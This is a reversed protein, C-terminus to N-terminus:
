SIALLIPWAYNEQFANGNQLDCYVIMAKRYIDEEVKKAEPDILDSQFPPIICNFVETNSEEVTTTTTNSHMFEKNFFKNMATKNLSRQPLGCGVLENGIRMLERKHNQVIADNSTVVRCLGRSNEIAMRNYWIWLKLGSAFIEVQNVNRSKLSRAVEIPNRFTFVVAPRPGKLLPLWMKLTVCLRPDKMIWPVNSPNNYHHLAKNRNFFYQSNRELQSITKPCPHKACSHQLSFEHFVISSNTPSTTVNLVDWTKNQEKLWVDNQRLVNWNEYFGYPNQENANIQFGPSKYHLGHVLLGSLLSTGSRHMGLVIVGRVSKVKTANNGENKEDVDQNNNQIGHHQTEELETAISVNTKQLHGNNNAKEKLIHNEKKSEMIGRVSKISKVKTTKDFVVAQQMRQIIQKARKARTRGASDDVHKTATKKKLLIVPVAGPWLSSQINRHFRFLSHAQVFFFICLFSVLLRRSCCSLALYYNLGGRPTSCNNTTEL